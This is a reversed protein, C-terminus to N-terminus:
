IGRITSQPDIVAVAVDVVFTILLAFAGYVLVVGQVLPYDKTTIAQVITSGLGPWAFVNEVLVTGALLSSFLLGGVTLSATLLNPLAHRLYRIRAPLRKAQATRMYDQGLVRLSEVRVIRSLSAAPVVTLALVPLVYSSLDSRSAVPFVPPATGGVRDSSGGSTV